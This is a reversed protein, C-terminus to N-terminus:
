RRTTTKRKATALKKPAAKKKPAGAKDGWSIGHAKAWDHWDPV